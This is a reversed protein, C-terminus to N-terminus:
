PPPLTRVVEIVRLRVVTLDDIRMRRARGSRLTLQGVALRGLALSGLTLAGVALAGVAMLGTAALGTASTSVARGPSPVLATGPETVPQAPTTAPLTM